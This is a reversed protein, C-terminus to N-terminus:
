SVSRKQCSTPPSGVHCGRCAFFSLFHFGLLGFHFSIFGWFALIFPFSPGFSCFSWNQLCNKPQIQKSSTVMKSLSLYCIQALPKKFVCPFSFGLLGFHFSISAWSALIFPFCPGVPWFSLFALSFLGFHKGGRANVRPNLTKVKSLCHPPTIHRRCLM